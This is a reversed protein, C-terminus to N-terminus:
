KIINSIWEFFCDLDLKTLVVGLFFGFLVSVMKKISLKYKERKEM